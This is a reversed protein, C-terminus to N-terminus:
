AGRIHDGAEVGGGRQHQRGVATAIHAAVDGGAHQGGLEPPALFEGEEDIQAGVTLDHQAVAVEHEGTGAGGARGKLAAIDAM